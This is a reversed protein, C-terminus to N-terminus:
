CKDNKQRRLHLDNLTEAVIKDLEQMRDFFQQAGECERSIEYPAVAEYRDRGFIIKFPSLGSEGPTNYYM